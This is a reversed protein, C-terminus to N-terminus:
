EAEGLAVDVVVVLVDVIEFLVLVDVSAVLLEVLPPRSLANRDHM